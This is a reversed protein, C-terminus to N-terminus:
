NGFYVEKLKEDKVVEEPKGELYIKGEVLVIVRDVIDFLFKLDHEVIIITRSSEKSLEKISHALTKKMIPSVGATPEDILLLQGGSIKLRLLELLRLQGGSLVGALSKKHGLLNTSELLENIIKDTKLKQKKSFQWWWKYKQSTELALMLNEELTMEKFVGANQFGRSLGKQARASASLKTIDEDNLIISGATIPTFGSIANLCTTKGSGNQGILGVIEGAKTEFSVGQLIPTQGFQVSINELKIM